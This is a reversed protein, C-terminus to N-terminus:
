VATVISRDHFSLARFDAYNEDSSAGLGSLHQYYAEKEIQFTMTHIGAEKFVYSVQFIIAHIQITVNDSNFNLVCAKQLFQYICVYFRFVIVYKVAVKISNM